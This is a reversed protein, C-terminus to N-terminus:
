GSDLPSEPQLLLWSRVLAVALDFLLIYALADLLGVRHPHSSLMIGVVIQAVFAGTGAVFVGNILGTTGALGLQTKTASVAAAIAAAAVPWGISGGTMQALLSVALVDALAIFAGKAMGRNRPQARTGLIQEYRLTIAVFLLGILSGAVASCSAFFGSLDKMRPLDYDAGALPLARVAPTVLM